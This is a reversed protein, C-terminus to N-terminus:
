HRRKHAYYYTKEKGWSLKDAEEMAYALIRRCENSLPLDLTNSVKERIVTQGEIQKRIAEVAGHSRLSLFTNALSKDERLLGLLLHESEIYPSGFQNAEYRGFFITRRAKGTYREFMFLERHLLVNYDTVM